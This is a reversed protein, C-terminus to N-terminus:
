ICVFPFIYLYCDVVYLHNVEDIEAHLIVVEKLYVQM